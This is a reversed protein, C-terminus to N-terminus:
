EHLGQDTNKEADRNTVRPEGWCAAAPWSIESGYYDLGGARDERLLLPGDLDVWNAEPTLLLAPAMSMSTAVMCGIMIQFDLARAGDVLAKAATLGGAKDLKVNIVQYKARLVELDELGHVSEDAGIAVTSQLQRLAEDEDAPLPQEIMKVGIAEAVLLFRELQSVSWGENADVVLHSGPAAEHVAQMREGDADADIGGLKIKLLPREANAAANAAMQAPEAIPLTFATAVPQPRGVGLLQWVPQQLQQARLDWLACNLANDAAKMGSPAEGSLVLELRDQSMANLLAAVAAPTEGYRAYPLCEGLGCNVGDSLEVVVVDATTKVGRSIRFEAALPWSEVQANLKLASM